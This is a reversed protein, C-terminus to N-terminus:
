QNDKKVVRTGTLTDHWPNGGFASLVELPIIRCLSRLFADRWTIAGGDDRIAVTRTILKGLSRGKTSGEIVSYYVVMLVAMSLYFVMAGGNTSFFPTIKDSSSSIAATIGFLMVVILFFVYFLLTDIVFNAFRLGVAARQRYAGMEDFLSHQTNEMTDLYFGM